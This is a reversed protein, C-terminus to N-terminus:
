FGGGRQTKALLNRQLTCLRLLGGRSSARRQFLKPRVGQGHSGHDLFLIQQSSRGESLRDFPSFTGTHENV